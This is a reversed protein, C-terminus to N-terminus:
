GLGGDAATPVLEFEAYCTGLDSSSDQTYTGIADYGVTCTPSTSDHCPCSGATKYWRVFRWGAAATATLTVTQGEHVFEVCDEPTPATPGCSLTGSLGPSEVITQAPAITGDVRGQGSVGTQLDKKCTREIAGRVWDWNSVDTGVKSTNLATAFGGVASACTDGHQQSIIAFVGASTRVPGGSDGICINQDTAGPALYYAGGTRPTTQLAGDFFHTASVAGVRLVQSGTDVGAVTANNGYGVITAAKPGGTSPTGPVGNAGLQANGLGITNIITQPSWGSLPIRPEGPDGGGGTGADSGSGAGPTPPTTLQNTAWLVALDRWPATHQPHVVGAAINQFPKNDLSTLNAGRYVLMAQVPPVVVHAATLLCRKYKVNVSSGIKSADNTPTVNISSILLFVKSVEGAGGGGARVEDVREDVETACGALLSLM